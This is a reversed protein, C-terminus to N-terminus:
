PTPPWHAKNTLLLRYPLCQTVTAPSFVRVYFIPQKPLFYGSTGPTPDKDPQSSDCTPNACDRCKDNMTGGYTFDWTRFGAGTAFGSEGSYNCSLWTTTTSCDTFVQIRLQNSADVLKITPGYDCTNNPPFSLQFWDQDSSSSITYWGSADPLNITAGVAVTTATAAGTCADAITDTQCECGDPFQQDTDAWGAGCSAVRCAGTTCTGSTTHPPLSTTCNTTCTGCHVPDNKLNIECGDGGPNNNCDAFGSTCTISCQGGGCGPTGNLTSCKTTCSGCHNVDTAINQECGTTQLNGDCDAWGTACPSNCSGSNCSPTTVHVHSCATSCSGCHDPDALLNTECGNLVLNGDCDDWGALCTATCVGGICNAGQAHSPNCLVGCTGCHALDNSTMTECGNHPDGDCDGFGVVCTNVCEGAVCTMDTANIGICPTGCGGCHLVDNVLDTECGNSADADCDAWGGTCTLSCSGNTCAPTSHIASCVHGCKGCNSVDSNTNVECGTAFVGDCDGSGTPCSIGCKGGNCSPTGNTSTCKNGCTTCNNVDDLLNVECGNAANNDCDAWNNDCSTVQCVSAVCAPTAHFTSCATACDACHIESTALDTECGNDPDSDCDGLGSSCSNVVCLGAKCESSGTTAVCVHGCAGCNTMDDPLHSECGDTWDDNCNAYTADCTYHCKGTSCTAAANMADCFTICSGCHGLEILLNAECGNDPLGDCDEYPKVCTGVVCKGQVSCVWAAVSAKVSPTHGESCEANIDAVDDVTGNCDDDIANCSEPLAKVTQTCGKDGELCNTQGTACPGFVPPDTVVSCPQGSGQYGDDVTGNCDNDVGDCTESGAFVTQPCDLQKATKDCVTASYKCPGKLNAPTKVECPTGVGQPNNDIVGDCDNDIGDCKEPTKVCAEEQTADGGEQADGGEPKPENSVDKAQADAESAADGADTQAGPLPGEEYDKDLGLITGCGLWTPAVVLIGIAWALRKM